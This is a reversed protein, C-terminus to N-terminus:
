EIEELNVTSVRFMENLREEGLVSEVTIEGTTRCLMHSDRATLLIQDNTPNKEISPLYVLPERNSL